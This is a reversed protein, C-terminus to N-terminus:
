APRASRALRIAEASPPKSKLARIENATAMARRAMEKKTLLTLGSSEYDRFLAAREAVLAAQEITYRRISEVEAMTRLRRALEADAEEPTKKKPM